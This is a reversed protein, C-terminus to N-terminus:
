ESDWGEDTLRKQTVAAEQTSYYGYAVYGIWLVIFLFILQWGSSSLQSVGLFDPTVDITSPIVEYSIFSVFNEFDYHNELAGNPYLRQLIPAMESHRFLIFVTPQEILPPANELTELPLDQGNMERSFFRFAYENWTFNDSILYVHYSSPLSNLYRAIRIRNGANNKVYDYYVQWNNIGTVLLIGAMVWIFVMYSIRGFTKRLIKALSEIGAAAVIFIAPLAINLHPWYPPDATLVSGLIFTLFIWALMTFYKIDKIRLLAYGLGLVFFLASVPSVMPRQFSFHPSGDGTLHLTLFTRWIQQILVIFPSDTEYSALQHQWVVDTWLGVVNTRGAFESFHMVAFALMPGFGLLIGAILLMWDKYM